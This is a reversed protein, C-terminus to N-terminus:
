HPNSRKNNQYTKQYNLSTSRYHNLENLVLRAKVLKALKRINLTGLLLTTKSALIFSVKISLNRGNVNKGRLLSVGMWPEAFKLLKERQQPFSYRRQSTSVPWHFRCQTFWISRREGRSANICGKGERPTPPGAKKLTGPVPGGRPIHKRSGKSTGKM